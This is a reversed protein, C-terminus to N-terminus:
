APGVPPKASVAQRPSESMTAPTHQKTCLAIVENIRKNGQQNMAQWNRFANKEWAVQDLNQKIREPYHATVREM